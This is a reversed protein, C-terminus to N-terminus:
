LGDHAEGALELDGVARLESRVKSRVAVGEIELALARADGRERLVLKLLTRSSQKLLLRLLLDLCRLLLRVLIRAARQPMSRPPRGLERSVDLLQERGLIAVLCGELLRARKEVFFGDAVLHTRRGRTAARARLIEHRAGGLWTHHTCLLHLLM